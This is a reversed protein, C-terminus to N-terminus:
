KVAAKPTIRKPRSTIKEFGEPAQLQVASSDVSSERRQSYYYYDDYYGYYYDDWNPSSTHRLRFSEVEGDEWVVYGRFFDDDISYRRIQLDYNDEELHIFITRDRVEWYFHNAVYRWPAYSYYDVWYGYGSKFRMPDLCFELETYDAHYCYGQYEVYSHMDGEWTGELSTAIMSDCSSLNVVSAVLAFISFIWKSINKKM